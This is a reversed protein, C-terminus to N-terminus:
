HITSDERPQDLSSAGAVVRDYDAAWQLMRYLLWLSFMAVAFEATLTLMMTMLDLMDITSVWKAREEITTQFVQMGGQPANMFLFLLRGVSVQLLVLSIFAGLCAATIGVWVNQIIYSSLPRRDPTLMRKALRTYRYSWFMTFLLVLLSGFSVYERLDFRRLPSSGPGSRTVVMMLMVLPLVALAVQIWFGIWGLRTFLKAATDPTASSSPATPEKSM